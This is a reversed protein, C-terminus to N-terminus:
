LSLLVERLAFHFDVLSGTNQIRRDCEKLCEEINQGSSQGTNEREDHGLFTQFDIKDTDHQRSQVREFRLKADVEIGIFYAGHEKLFRLESVNRISDFVVKKEGADHVRQWVVEALYAQGHKSKLENAVAVLNDRILELGRRRAEERVVDSLSVVHYGLAAFYHCASSKGSGNAGIIGLYRAM